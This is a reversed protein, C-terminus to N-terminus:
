GTALCLTDLNLEPFTAATWSGIALVVLAASLIEGDHCEVGVTRGDERVLRKVGKGPRVKAGMSKVKEAMLAVGQSANAWGGDHNVYGTVDTANADSEPIFPVDSPFLSRM